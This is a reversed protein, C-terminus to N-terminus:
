WRNECFLFRLHRSTARNRTNVIHRRSARIADHRIARPVKNMKVREAPVFFPQQRKEKVMIVRKNRVIKNEIVIRIIAGALNQFRM